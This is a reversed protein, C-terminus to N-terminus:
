ILISVLGINLHVNRRRGCRRRCGRGRRRSGSRDAAAEARKGAHDCGAHHSRDHDHRNELTIVVLNRTPYKALYAQFGGNDGTHYIKPNDPDTSDIFWGLGYATNDRNQYTSWKSGTVTVQPTYALQLTSDRLVKGTRLANEWQLLNDASTYKMRLEGGGQLDVYNTHEANLECKIRAGQDIGVSLDMDFGSLPPRTVVHQLTTDSFNTFKVLDDLQTDTTLPSDRLVYVVDTNGLVDLKGRMKLNSVLGNMRGFFNVFGGCM